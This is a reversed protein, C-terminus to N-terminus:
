FLFNHEEFKILKEYEKKLKLGSFIMVSCTNLSCTGVLQENKESPNMPLSILEAIHQPQPISSCQNGNSSDLWNKGNECCKNFLAALPDSTSFKGYFVVLYVTAQVILTKRKM